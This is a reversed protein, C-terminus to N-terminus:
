YWGCQGLGVIASIGATLLAIGAAKFLKPKKEKSVIGAIFLVLTVVLLVPTALLLIIGIDNNINSSGLSEFIMLSIM